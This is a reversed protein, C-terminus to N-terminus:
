PDVQPAMAPAQTAVVAKPAEPATLTLPDSDPPALPAPAAAFSTPETM